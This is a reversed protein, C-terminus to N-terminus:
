RRRGRFSQAPLLGPKLDGERGRGGQHPERFGQEVVTHVQVRRAAETTQPLLPTQVAETSNNKCSEYMGQAYM